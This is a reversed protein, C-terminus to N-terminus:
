TSSRPAPSSRATSRSACAGGHDRRVAPGLRQPRDCAERAADARGRRLAPAPPLQTGHRALAPLPGAATVAALKAALAEDELKNLELTVFLLRTGIATAREQVGQYFQGVTPDDRQAAFLLQAYSLARGIRDEIAEYREIMDALRDGDLEPSGARSSPRWSRRTPARGGCSRCRHASRGARRLPRRSELGAGAPGAAVGGRREVQEAAAGPALRWEFKRQRQLGRSIPWLSRAELKARPGAARWPAPVPQLPASPRM